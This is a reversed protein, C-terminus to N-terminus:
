LTVREGFLASGIRIYTSGGAIGFPVAKEFDNSMGISLDKLGNEQALKMLFAFHLAPPEDVPPICMLGIINLGEARALMLLKPLADPTIGSKQDEAGTNVQVFCPLYRGQKKMEAALAIVLKARDLTEIVDFFAVAERVKNTQLPGILHIKTDPYRPKLGQWTKIADQVRNEGFLRHGTELLREIRDPPQKKSVAILQIDKADRLKKDGVLTPRICAKEIKSYIIALNQRIDPACSSM